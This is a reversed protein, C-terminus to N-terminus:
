PNEYARSKYLGLPTIDPTRPGRGIISTVRYLVALHAPSSDHQFWLRDRIDM